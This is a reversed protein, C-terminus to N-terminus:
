TREGDERRIEKSEHDLQRIEEANWGAGIGFLFRGNAVRDLCAVMKALNITHHEPVLCVSTGVKLKTTVAAAATLGIFPDFFHKYSEPLEGGM